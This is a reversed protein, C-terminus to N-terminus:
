GGLYICARDGKVNSVFVQGALNTTRFQVYATVWAAQNACGEGMPLTFEITGTVVSRGNVV